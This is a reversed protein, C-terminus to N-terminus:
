SGAVRLLDSIVAARGPARDSASDGDRHRHHGHGMVHAGCGFRMMMFILLGWILFYLITQGM